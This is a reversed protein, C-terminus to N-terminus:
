QGYPDTESGPVLAVVFLSLPNSPTPGGAREAMFSANSFVCNSFWPLVSTSLIKASFPENGCIEVNLRERENAVPEVSPPVYVIPSTFLVSEETVLWGFRSTTLWLRQTTSISPITTLPWFKEPSLM